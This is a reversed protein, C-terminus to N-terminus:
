SIIQNAISNITIKQLRKWLIISVGDKVIQHITSKNSRDVAHKRDDKKSTSIVKNDDDVVKEPFLLYIWWNFGRLIRWLQWISSNYFSSSYHKNHLSNQDEHHCQSHTDKNFVNCNDEICHSCYTRSGVEDKKGVTEVDEKDSFIFPGFINIIICGQRYEYHHNRKWQKANYCFINVM